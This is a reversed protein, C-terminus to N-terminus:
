SFAPAVSVLGSCGQAWIVAIHPDILRAFGPGEEGLAGASSCTQFRNLNRRTATTQSQRSPAGDRFCNTRQSQARPNQLCALIFAFRRIFPLRNLPKGTFKSRRNTARGARNWVLFLPRTMPGQLTTGWRNADVGSIQLSKLRLFGKSIVVSGSSEPGSDPSCGMKRM